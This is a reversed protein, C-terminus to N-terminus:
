TRAGREDRTREPATKSRRTATPNPAIYHAIMSVLDTGTGMFVVDSFRKGDLPM